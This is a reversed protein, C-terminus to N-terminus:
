QARSLTDIAGSVSKVATDLVTFNAMAYTLAMNNLSARQNMDKMMALSKLMDSQLSQVEPPANPNVSGNFNQSIAAIANKDSLIPAGDQVSLTIKSRDVANVFEQLTAPQKDASNSFMRNSTDPRDQMMLPAQQFMRNTNLAHDLLNAFGEKIDQPQPQTVTLDVTVQMMQTPDVASM